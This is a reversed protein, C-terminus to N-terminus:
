SEPGPPSTTTTTTTTTADPCSTDPHFREYDCRDVPDSTNSGAGTPVSRINGDIEFRVAEHGFSTETATFVVQAIARALETSAVDFLTADALEITVVGSDDDVRHGLVRVGDPLANRRDQQRTGEVLRNLVATLDDAQSVPIQVQERALDDDEIFWLWRPQTREPQTTTTAPPSPDLLDENEEDLTLPEPNADSPMACSALLLVVALLVSTM